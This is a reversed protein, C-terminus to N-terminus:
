FPAFTPVRGHVNRSPQPFQPQLSVLLREPIMVNRRAYQRLQRILIELIDADGKAM